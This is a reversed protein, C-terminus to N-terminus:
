PLGPRDVRRRIGGARVGRIRGRPAGGARVRDGEAHRLVVGAAGLRAAERAEGRPPRPVRSAADGRRRLLAGPRGEDGGREELRAHFEPPLTGADVFSAVQGVKMAAGKMSGLVDLIQEAAHMQRREAAQRRGEESRALNTAKTAYSRAAQGGVLGGLKATRRLRSTPIRSSGEAM